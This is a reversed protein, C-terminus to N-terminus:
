GEGNVITPPADAPRADPAGDATPRITGCAPCRPADWDDAVFVGKGMYANVMGAARLEALARRVTPRSVGFQATLTDEGPLAAGRPLQGSRISAAIPDMVQKWLPTRDLPAWTPGPATTPRRPM